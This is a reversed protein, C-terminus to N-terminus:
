ESATVVDGGVVFHAGSLHYVRPLGSRLKVMDESFLDEDADAAVVTGVIIQHNGAERHWALTCELNVCCEWIRAPRILKSEYPTLGTEAFEDVEPPYRHGAKYLQALIEQTPIGVVFERTSAINSFTDATPSIGLALMPPETSCSMFFGFPALNRIGRADVTSVLVTNPPPTLYIVAEVRDFVEIKNM